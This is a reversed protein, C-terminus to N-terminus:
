EISVWKRSYSFSRYNRRMLTEKEKIKRRKKKERIKWTLLCWLRVPHFLFLLLCLFLFNFLRLYVYRIPTKRDTEKLYISCLQRNFQIAKIRETKIGFLLVVSMISDLEISLSLSPREACCGFRLTPIKPRNETMSYLWIAELCKWHLYGNRGCMCVCKCVCKCVCECVCKCVGCVCVSTVMYLCFIFSFYSPFPLVVFSLGILSLIANECQCCRRLRRWRRRRVQNTTSISKRLSRLRPM